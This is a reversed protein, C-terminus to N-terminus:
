NAGLNVLQQPSPPETTRIAMRTAPPRSNSTFRGLFILDYTPFLFSFHNQAISTEPWPHCSGNPVVPVKKRKNLNSHLLRRLSKKEPYDNEDREQRDPMEETDLVWSAGVDRVALEDREGLRGFVRAM